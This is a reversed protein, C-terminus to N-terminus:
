RLMRLTTLMSYCYQVMYFAYFFALNNPAVGVITNFVQITLRWLPAIASPDDFASTFLHARTPKKFIIIVYIFDLTFSLCLGIYVFREGGNRRRKNALHRRYWNVSFFGVPVNSCNLILYDYYIIVSQVTTPLPVLRVQM